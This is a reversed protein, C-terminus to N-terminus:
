GQGMFAIREQRLSSLAERSTQGIIFGNTVPSAHQILTSSVQAVYIVSPDTGDPFLFFETQIQIAERHLPTAQNATIDISGACDFLLRTTTHTM